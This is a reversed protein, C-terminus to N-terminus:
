VFIPEFKMILSLATDKDVIELRFLVKLMKIYALRYNQDVIMEKFVYLEQPNSM